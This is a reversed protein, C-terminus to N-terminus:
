ILVKSLKYTGAPHLIHKKILLELHDKETQDHNNLKMIAKGMALIMM